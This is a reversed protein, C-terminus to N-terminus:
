VTIILLLWQPPDAIATPSKCMQTVSCNSIMSIEYHINLLLQQHYHYSNSRTFKLEDLRIVQSVYQYSRQPPKQFQTTPQRDRSQSCAVEM